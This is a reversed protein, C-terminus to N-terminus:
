HPEPAEPTPLTTDTRPTPVAQRRSSLNSINLANATEAAAAPPPTIAVTVAAPAGATECGSLAFSAFVMAPFIFMAQPPLIRM